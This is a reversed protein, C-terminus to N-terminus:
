RASAQNNGSIEARWAGGDLWAACQNIVQEMPPRTRGKLACEWVTLVRWAKRLLASETEADKQRNRTIKSRWFERRSSPWKFLHCDHQHWFCGHVMIVAHRSPFVLDPKGPLDARHLRFRYGKRHLGQRIVIEPRTNKGKIGAMMRSRTATDVIDAM